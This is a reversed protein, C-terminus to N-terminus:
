HGRKGLDILCFDQHNSLDTASRTNEEALIQDKMILQELYFKRTRLYLILSLLTGVFCFSGWIFFITRYCQSGMCKDSGEPTERQYLFAALYGFVFSGIPINTVLINHNVSFNKSGFLETTTSIAISTIAGTCVGITATTLYLNTTNLLMFSGTSLTMLMVIFAPRSVMYRCRSRSFFYDILSPVLRGFFGFSSSLSVLASANSMGRSEAIQGLNNLFVLGLTVGFMYLFFYLWFDLRQLMVSPRVEERVRIEAVEEEVQDENVKKGVVREEVSSLEDITFDHVRDSKTTPTLEMSIVVMLPAALLLGFGVAIIKTSIVVSGLSCIIAYIGTAGTIFFMVGFGGMQNTSGKHHIERVLPAAIVSILLPVISNLFLYAKAKKGPSSPFIVDVIITYVQASLGVYSTSLGVAIQRNSPFNKITVIYCVTNIWCISNGAVVTLFFIVWYPLSAIKNILFLYQVGYGVMGLIAGIVLALWLPLHMAAIGSFWGLLKGADSAFALNNLQIQSISLLNKVHSSYAPFDSNTGNISQLWIIGILSLWQLSSPSFM